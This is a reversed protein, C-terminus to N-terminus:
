IYIPLYEELQNNKEKENQYAIQWPTVFHMIEKDIDERSFVGSGTQNNLNEYANKWGHASETAKTYDEVSVTNPQYIEAPGSECHLTPENRQIGSGPQHTPIRATDYGVSVTTPAINNGHINRMHRTLNQKYDGQFPCQNCKFM